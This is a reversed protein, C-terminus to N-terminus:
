ETWGSSIVRNFNLPTPKMLIRAEKAIMLSNIASNSFHVTDAKILKNQNKTDIEGTKIINKLRENSRRMDVFVTSNFDIEGNENYVTNLLIEHAVRISAEKSVRDLIEGSAGVYILWDDCKKIANAIKLSFDFDTAAMKYMAGHPRVHEINLGYANAFASVASIQYVIIAEFEEDSLDMPRNGFGKIDDFGIHVGISVNKEKCALMSNKIKLPDGAHFGACINVSSVFDLFSNENDKEYVGFAQALDVNYDLSTIVNKEELIEQM